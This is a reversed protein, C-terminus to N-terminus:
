DKMAGAFSAATVAFAVALGMALLYLSVVYKNKM